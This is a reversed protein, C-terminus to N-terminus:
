KDYEKNSWVMLNLFTLVALYILSVLQRNLYKLEFKGDFCSELYSYNLVPLLHGFSTARAVIELIIFLAILSIRALHERGAAAYILNAINVVALSPLINLNYIVFSSAINAPTLNTEFAINGAIQSLVFMIWALVFYVIQQTLLKSLIFSKRNSLKMAQFKMNGSAYDQIFVDLLGLGIIIPGIPLLPKNLFDTSFQEVFINSDVYNILGEEVMKKYINISIVSYIVYVILIFLFLKKKGLKDAENKLLRKM